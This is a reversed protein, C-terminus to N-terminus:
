PFFADSSQTHVLRASKGVYVSKNYKICLFITCFLNAYDSINM